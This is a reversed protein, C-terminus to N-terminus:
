DNKGRARIADGWTGGGEKLIWDSMTACAEREKEAILKAFAVLEVETCILHNYENSDEVGAKFAMEIIEEKTMSGENDSAVLDVLVERNVLQLDHITLYNPIVNCSDVSWLIRPKMHMRLRFRWCKLEHTAPYYWVWAVVFGGRTRYLNLGVKKRSGEETIHIM